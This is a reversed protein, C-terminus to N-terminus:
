SRSRPRQRPPTPRVSLGALADLTDSLLSAHATRQGPHRRLLDLPQMLVFPFLQGDSEPLDLARKIAAESAHLDGLRDRAMAHVLLAEVLSGPHLVRAEGALVVELAEDAARADGYALCCRRGGYANRGVQPGRRVARGRGRTGGLDTWALTLVLWEHMQATLSHPSALMIQLREAARFVGLAQEFRGQALHEMGRGRQLLLASAPELDPRLIAEAKGLWTDATEFRGQSVDMLGMMALAVCVILQLSL